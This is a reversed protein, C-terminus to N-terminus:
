FTKSVEASKASHNNSTDFADVAFYHTMGPLLGGYVYSTVLGLTVTDAGDYVGPSTGHYITYGALDPETNAIWQITVQGRYLLAGQGSTVVRGTLAFSKAHILTGQAGTAALGTLAQSASGTAIKRSRLPVLTTLGTSGQGGTAELGTVAVNGDGGEAVLTGLGSTIELGGAM